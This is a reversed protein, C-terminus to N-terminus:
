IINEKNYINEMNLKYNKVKEQNLDSILCIKDFKEWNAYCKYFIGDKETTFTADFMSQVKQENKIKRKLSAKLKQKKIQEKQKKNLTAM